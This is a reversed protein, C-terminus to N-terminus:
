DLRIRPDILSLLIDAILNGFILLISSMFLSGMVLYLDQSFLAEMILRGLGPWAMINEVIFAGSLLGAIEFGLLTVLPNIANRAGHKIIVSSKSLGKSLATTIYESKLIDLMQSRMYRTLHAISFVGLVITPLILHHLLDLIKDGLSLYEYNISHMGGLPFWKTKLALFLMALALLIESISQGLFSFFSGLKDILSFRYTACLIGIPIAITWSFLLASFSLIFTNLLRQLILSTVSIQYTFSTGFDLHLIAWLWKLYQIYWPKDLGFKVKMIEIKEPSIQPNMKFKSLYDGPAMTILIFSIFTIGIILPITHLLRRLIYTHM